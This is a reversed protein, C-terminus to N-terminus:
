KAGFPSLSTSAILTPPTMKSRSSSKSSMNRKASSPIASAGSSAPRRSDCTVLQLPAIPRSGPRVPLRPQATAAGSSSAEGPISGPNFSKCDEAHVAALGRLRPMAIPQRWVMTLRPGIRCNCPPSTGRSLISGLYNYYFCYSVHYKTVNHRGTFHGHREVM